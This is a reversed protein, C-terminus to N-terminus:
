SSVEQNEKMKRAIFEDFDFPQGPGSAEGEDIAANFAAVKKAREESLAAIADMVDEATQYHGAAVLADVLANLRARLEAHNDM